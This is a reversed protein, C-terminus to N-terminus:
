GIDVVGRVVVPNEPGLVKQLVQRDEDGLPVFIVPDQVMEPDILRYGAIKGFSFVPQRGYGYMANDVRGLFDALTIAKPRPTRIYLLEIVEAWFHPVFKAGVDAHGVRCRSTGAIMVPPSVLPRDQTARKQLEAALNLCFDASYCDDFILTLHSLDHSAADAPMLAAALQEVPVGYSQIERPLGHGLVIVTAPSAASALRGLHSLFADGVASRSQSSDQKLVTAATGYAEALTTIQRPDLGGAPDLLAVVEVGPGLVVRDKARNRLGMVFGALDAVSADARDRLLWYVSPAIQRWLKENAALDQPLAARATETFQEITEVPVSEAAGPPDAAHSLSAWALSFLALRIWGNRRPELPLLVDQAKASSASLVSRGGTARGRAMGTGPLWRGYGESAPTNWLRFVYMV